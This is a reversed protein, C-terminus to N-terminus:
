AFIYLADALLLAFRNQTRGRTPGFADALLLAFRNQTRGATLSCANFRATM